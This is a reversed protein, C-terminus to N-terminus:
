RKRIRVKIIKRKSVQKAIMTVNDFVAKDNKDPIKKLAHHMLGNVTNYKDSEPLDVNFFDNVEKRKNKHIETRMKEMRDNLEETSPDDKWMRKDTMMKTMHENSDSVRARYLVDSLNGNKRLSDVYYANVPYKLFQGQFFLPKLYSQENNKEVKKVTM